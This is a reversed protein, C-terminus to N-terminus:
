AAPRDALAEKVKATLEELSFPKALFRFDTDGLNKRFSDEAYGSVFIIQLDPRLKRAEVAFAPGDMGPMVVDSILVNVPFDPNGLMEMAEEATAAETVRHGRLALARAAFARVPDEDEVLLVEASGSLDRRLPAEGRESGAAPEEASRPLLISFRAGGSAQNEVTIYGGSQKVIGYVTSLGLGTGEGKAKTTFFPEFVRDIVAPDIGPGSDGVSIEVYDGPAVVASGIATECPHHRNGTAITIRGQGDMADRANVVLNMLAQELQQQDARVPWLGAESDLEIQVREGVLRDLLFRTDSIVDLLNLREPTLRQKRSFALLQRVLGAARNANQSIQLLDSCDPHSADKGMLLLDCHGSIATLVNNLDHAVGGALKGIAEMKQSQVFQDELQRLASADHLVTLLIDRGEIRARSLAMQLFTESGRLRVMEGRARGSGSGAEAILRELPQALPEVIRELPAGPAAEPGLMEGALANRWLLEGAPSFEALAVPAGELMQACTDDPETDTDVPFLFIDRIEPAGPVTFAFARHIATGGSALPLAVRGGSMAEPEPLAALVPTPDPGFSADFAANPAVRGDADIRLQAFPALEYAADPAACVVEGIRARPLLTWYLRDGGVWSALLYDPHADAGPPLPALAIGIERAMRALRYITSGLAAGTHRALLSDLTPAPSEVERAMASNAYQVRGAVDTLAMPLSHEALRRGDAAGGRDARWLAFALAALALVAGLALILAWGLASV